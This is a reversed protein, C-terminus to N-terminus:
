QQCKVAAFGSKNSALDVIYHLPDVILEDFEKKLVTDFYVVHWFIEKHKFNHM